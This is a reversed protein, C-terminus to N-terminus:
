RLGVAQQSAQVCADGPLAQLQEILVIIVACMHAMAGSWAAAVYSSKSRTACPM